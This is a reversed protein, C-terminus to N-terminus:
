SESCLQYLLSDLKSLTGFSKQWGELVSGNGLGVRGAIEDLSLGKKQLFTVKENFQDRAKALPPAENEEANQVEEASAIGLDIGIGLFGLARGVASTECNEIYSTKNIYSASEKENAFGTALINDEEDMVTAKMTVVGNDMQVIDTTIKGDPFLQRFAKIRENVQAYNKGKIDVLKISENVKKLEEFTMTEDEGM